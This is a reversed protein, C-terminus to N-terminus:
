PSLHVAWHVDVSHTDFGIGESGLIECDAGAGGGGSRRNRRRLRSQSVDEINLERQFFFYEQRM